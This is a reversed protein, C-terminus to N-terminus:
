NSEVSRSHTMLVGTGEVLHVEGRIDAIVGLWSEQSGGPWHVRIESLKGSQGVPILVRPDHSSQFSGGSPVPLIFNREDQKVSIVAGLPQRSSHTGIVRVRISQGSRRSDNRLLAPSELLHTVVIDTDGDNDLDGMAVARGLWKRTFYSGAQQSVDSFRTGHRNLLVQPLMHYEHESGLPTWDRIHGNAVFLDPWSDLDFDAFVVGFGLPSWSALDLGIQSNTAIFGASGLNAFMDNVQNRFNTVCLDLHANHDYDACAVGMGAGIRGDSSIAVGLEVGREDFRMRGRNLFLFNPSTDNVVYVDLLGDANLDTITLALGKGDESRGIGARNGIETFRGDGANHYLHDSQGTRGIPSCVSNIEPHGPPHCPPEDPTWEVYNVVYLDLQGDADLDAFATSTGWSSSEVGATHTVDSFTGDGSNHWLQNRGYGSIFIDIFGDNDYDGAACGMGFGYSALRSTDVTNDYKFSGRSRYLRSAEETTRAPRQFNSGNVLLIDMTGDCDFDLLAVGGGNQDTMHGQPGPAGYYVFNIGSEPTMWEFRFPSPESPSLHETLPSAAPRTPRTVSHTAVSSTSASQSPTPAAKWHRVSILSVALGFGIATLLTLRIGLTM